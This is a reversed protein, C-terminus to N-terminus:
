PKAMGRHSIGSRFLSHQGSTPWLVVRSRFLYYEPRVGPRLHENATCSRHQSHRREGGGAQQENTVLNGTSYARARLRQIATMVDTSQYVYAQGVSTTWDLQDSMMYLISPYHAIAKVSVDWPQDDVGKPNSHTRMWRSAESVQDVFTAALLFQALLPDPYLAIPALLNDLQEHSFLESSSYEQAEVTPAAFPNISGPLCRWVTEFFTLYVLLFVALSRKDLVVWCRSMADAEDRTAKSHAPGRSCNSRATISRINPRRLPLPVSGFGILPLLM